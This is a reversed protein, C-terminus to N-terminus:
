KVGKEKEHKKQQKKAETYAQDVMRSFTQKIIKYDRDKNIDLGCFTSGNARAHLVLYYIGGILLAETARFNVDTNKFVPKSKKFLTEGFVERENAIERMLQSEESIEWLLIKQMEESNYVHDMQHEMLSIVSEKSLIPNAEVEKILHEPINNWYDKSKVYMEVLKDVNGFYLYILKNDLRSAKGIRNVILGKYGETRIIKGVAELIKNKTREKNRLPGDTVKRAMTNTKTILKQLICSKIWISLDM